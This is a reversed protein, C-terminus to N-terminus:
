QVCEKACNICVKRSCELCIAESCKICKYFTKRKKEWPCKSCTKRKNMKDDLADVEPPAEQDLKLAKKIVVKIDKTLSPALLRRRMHPEILDMALKKLFDFRSISPSDRYSLYMIFTNVSAINVMRYFVALPWRRTRKNSSYIACRMDLLDVGCKTENYFCIIEPKKKQLNMEASHHMTSVLVVARNKKPVFSVLTTNSNFGYLASGSPRKTDALFEKPIILKDKRMTGVYTLGRKALEEVAEISSFYNDATINKNSNEVPKCLKVLSQTPKMLLQEQNSLGQGDSGAGTYMYANYLFSSKADCLCMVKIGYKKPKQPMYVKFGCRGRFPVLMEDITLLESVCYARQSNSILMSFIESILAAKDTAKRVDRTAANDFRLCSTLVEYRKGSMTALYIPRGTADKSFMSTMQENTSKLISNLLLLGIYANIEIEDTNRYNSKETNPGLKERVSLLKTNTHEVIVGIMNQDFLLKWVDLREPRYGLGRSVPTLGPLGRILNRAPTRVNRPPEVTSWCFPPGQENKRMRGFVYTPLLREPVEIEPEPESDIESADPLNQPADPQRLSAIVPTNTLIHQRKGRVHFSEEEIDSSSEDSEEAPRDNPLIFDPDADSDDVVDDENNSDTDSNFDLMQRIRDMYDPDAVSYRVRKGPNNHRGTASIGSSTSPENM